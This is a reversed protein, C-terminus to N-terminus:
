TAILGHARCRALLANLQTIVSAADTADAVAAGQDGLVQTGNVAIGAYLDNVVISGTPQDIIEDGTAATFDNGIVTLAVSAAGSVVILGNSNVNTASKAGTTLRNGVITATVSDDQVRLCRSLFTDSWADQVDNGVVTGGPCDSKLVIGNPSPEVLSNGSVVYNRVFELQIGGSTSATEDGYGRITNAVVTVNEAYEVVAGVGSAAGSVVIGVDESGDTVGSDLTNGIIAVDKAAWTETAGSSAPVVWIPKNVRLLTNGRIAVNTGGHTDIGNWVPIDTIVNNEIVINISRPDTSLSAGNGRTVTIGYSNPSGTIDHVRNRSIIGNAVGWGLFGAYVADHLRCDIVEFGDVWQFRIADGGVSHITCNSVRINTLKAAWTAAAAVVGFETAVLSANQPGEVTIGDIHVDSASIEIAAEGGTDQHITGEGFLLLAGTIALPATIRYTGYPVYVAQGSALGADIASQIDATDDTSDDGVAGYDRVSLFVGQTTVVGADGVQYTM